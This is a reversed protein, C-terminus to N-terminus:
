QSSGISLPWKSCTGQNGFQGRYGPYCLRNGRPCMKGPGTGNQPLEDQTLRELLFLTVPSDVRPKHNFAPHWQPCALHYTTAPLPWWLRPIARQGRYAVCSASGNPPWSHAQLDGLLSCWVLPAWSSRPSSEGARSARGEGWALRHMHEQM